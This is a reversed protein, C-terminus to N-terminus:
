EFCFKKERFLKVCIDVVDADYKIGKNMLIEDLAADIGLASRYPRHSSMAEVVDAVAIIRSQLIIEDCSLGQPYGSGDLREHHQFIMTHIEEPFDIEKVVNYSEEVHTQIIQYELASITCPKNLIDSPIFFKGIDHILAGFSLNHIQEAVLGMERGIACALEAVRKQHGATYVDRLEGIKSIAKVSQHLRKELDIRQQELEEAFRLLENETQKRETIDRSVGQFGIVKGNEDRLYSSHMSVWIVSGDARYHEVEIIRSRNKDSKLDKEKELEELFVEHVIKLSDPTLKEEVTKRM